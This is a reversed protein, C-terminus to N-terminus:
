LQSIIIQALDEDTAERFKYSDSSVRCGKFDMDPHDDKHLDFIIKPYTENSKKTCIFEYSKFNEHYAILLDKKEYKMIIESFLPM